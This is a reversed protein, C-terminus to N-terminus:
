VDADKETALFRILGTDTMICERRAKYINGSRLSSVSVTGGFETEPPLLVRVRTVHLVGERGNVYEIWWVKQGVILQTGDETGQLARLIKRSISGPMNM